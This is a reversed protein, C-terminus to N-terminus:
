WIRSKTSVIVPVAAQGRLRVDTSPAVRGTPQTNGLHSYSPGAPWGPKAPGGFPRRTLQATSHDHVSVARGQLSRSQPQYDKGLKSGQCVKASTKCITGPPCDTCDMPITWDPQFDIPDETRPRQVEMAPERPTSRAGAGATFGIWM